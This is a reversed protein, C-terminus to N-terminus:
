ERIRVKQEDVIWPEHELSESDFLPLLQMLVGLIHSVDQHQLRLVILGSYDSPPYATIDAFDVDLTVLARREDRCVDALSEDGCGKMDQGLVTAADHGRDRFLEAAQAPLNEDFKFRM